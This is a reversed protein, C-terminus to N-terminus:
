DFDHEREWDIDKVGVGISFGNDDAWKAMGSKHGSNVCGMVILPPPLPMFYPNAQQFEAYAQPTLWYVKGAFLLRSMM